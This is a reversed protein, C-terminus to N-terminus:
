PEIAEIQSGSVADEVDTAPDAIVGRDGCFRDGWATADHAHLDVRLQCLAGPPIENWPRTGGHYAGVPALQFGPREVDDEHVCSRRLHQGAPQVLQTVASTEENRECDPDRHRIHAQPM